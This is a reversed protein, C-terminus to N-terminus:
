EMTGKSRIKVSSEHAAVIKEENDIILTVASKEIAFVEARGVNDGVSVRKGNIIAIPRTGARIFSVDYSFTVLNEVGAFLDVDLGENEIFVVAGFPRTPDALEEVNIQQASLAIPSLLFALIGVQWISKDKKCV